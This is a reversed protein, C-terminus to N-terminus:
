SFWIHMEPVSKLSVFMLFLFLTNVDLKHIIFYYCFMDHGVPGDHGAMGQLLKCIVRRRVFKDSSLVTLFSMMSRLNLFKM